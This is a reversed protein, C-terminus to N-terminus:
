HYLGVVRYINFKPQQFIMIKLGKTTSLSIANKRSSILPQSDIFILFGGRIFFTAYICVCIFNNLYM